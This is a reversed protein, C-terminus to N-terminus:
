KAPSPPKPPRQGVAQALEKGNGYLSLRIVKGDNLEAIVARHVTFPRESPSLRGLPGELTGRVVAELLVFDGAGLSSTVESTVGRLAARRRDMWAAIERRGSAPGIEAMDDVTAEGALSALFAERNGGDLANLCANVRAVNAAEAPSGKAEHATTASPLAPPARHPGPGLAGLQAMPTLTDLYRHEEVILGSPGFRYFLLGEHGMTQGTRMTGNVGYRVVARPGSLWVDYFALRTGPYERLLAVEYDEIAQRGKLTEGGHITIVADSAYLRAYRAAEGASVARAMEHLARLHPGDQAQLRGSVLLSLVTAVALAEPRSMAGMM